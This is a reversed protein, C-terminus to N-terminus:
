VLLERARKAEPLKSLTVTGAGAKDLTVALKNAVLQAAGDRTDTFREGDNEDVYEEAFFSRANPDRPQQPPRFSFGPFNGGRVYDAVNVDRLQASVRVPLNAAGGGNGYNVQLGIPLERPAIVVAKPPLVRGVMVPLRFEEVRFQSTQWSGLGSKLEVQYLGLKADKPIDFTTTASRGQRWELPFVFEQGSGQHVIRAKTPLEGAEMLKLGLLQERRAYHKISVTQGARLLTRDLVSHYVSRAREDDSGYEIASLHFRWAEIGENWTSWVFAMDARGVADTKRASVFYGNEGREGDSSCRGWRVPPLAKDVLAFGQANSRGTWLVAGDCDSIQLQADAVPQAKDLTTVWVGSNVRGHKFHVGLNTVLVSTRVYMPADRDLLAAGLKKSAVEVVHFGPEPMPIGVVEFPRAASASPASPLAVRRAASEGDLLSVSRTEVWKDEDRGYSNREEGYSVRKRAPEPRPPLPPLARGLVREIVTRELSSEDFRRLKALWAIIAADGSVRLDKLQGAPLAKIALNAEVARVTVPLLPEANLELV